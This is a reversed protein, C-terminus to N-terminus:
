WRQTFGTWADVSVVKHDPKKDGLDESPPYIAVYTLTKLNGFATFDGNAPVRNRWTGTDIYYREGADDHALLEIAPKHTHGAVLFLAEQNQIAEERAAYNEPHSIIIKSTLIGKSIFEIAELPLLKAWRWAKLDLAAQIADIPDLQWRKDMVDLWENLFTNHHSEELLERVLDSVISWIQKKSGIQGPMHLLYNLLASQPRLDDFEILRLYIARLLPRSIIKADGYKERMLMPLRAAIQVTVFDGFAPQAYYEAPIQNPIRENKDFDHSFNYRDYEHGHRIFTKEPARFLYNPFLEDSAPMGLLERTKRRIVPTANALRDHNGPLYDLTVPVPFDQEQKSKILVGQHLKRIIALSDKNEKNAAIADLIQLIKRELAGGSKVESNNVLPLVDDPNEKFWLGSRHLEFIDGALVLHLENAKNRQAEAALDAFVKQYAKPSLNRSFSIPPDGGSSPITLSAEEEMHLDSIVVLM